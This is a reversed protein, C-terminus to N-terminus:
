STRLRGLAGGASAPPQRASGASRGLRATRDGVEVGLLHFVGWQGRRGAFPQAYTPRRNELMATPWGPGVGHRRQTQASLDAELEHVDERGGSEDFFLRSVSVSGNGKANRLALLQPAMERRDEARHFDYGVFVTARAGRARTAEDIWRLLDMYVTPTMWMFFVEALPLAVRFNSENLSAEIVDFGGGVRAANSSRRRLVRCRRPSQEIATAHVANSGLVRHSM